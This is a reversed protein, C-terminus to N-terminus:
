EGTKFGLVTYLPCFGIAATVLFVLGILGLLDFLLGGHKIALLIFVIGLIVRGIRDWSAMNKQM